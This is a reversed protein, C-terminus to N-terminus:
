RYGSPSKASVKFLDITYEDVKMLDKGILRIPAVTLCGDRVALSGSDDSVQTFHSALDIAKDINFLRRWGITLTLGTM